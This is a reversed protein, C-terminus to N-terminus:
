LLSHCQSIISFFEDPDLSAHGVVFGSLVDKNASLIPTVNEGNVSGGYLFRINQPLKTKWEAITNKINEPSEAHYQGNTSIAENPEYMIFLRDSPFNSVNDPIEDLSQACLVVKLNTKAAEELKKGVAETTEGLNKRRESHGILCYAALESVQEATNEGTYSGMPLESIDQAALSISSLGNNKLEESLNTLTITSPAIAVSLNNFNNLESSHVTFKEVWDTIETLTENAKWNGVILFNDNM